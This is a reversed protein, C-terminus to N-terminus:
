RNSRQITDRLQSRLRSMKDEGVRPPPPRGQQQQGRNHDRFNFGGQQNRPPGQQHSQYRQQQQHQYQGNHQYGQQNHYQGQNQYGQNQYQGHNQYNGHSQYGQQPYHNGSHANWHQQGGQQAHQHANWAPQQQQQQNWNHQQNGNWGQQGRQQQQQQQYNGHASGQHHHNPRQRKPAPEMAGWQRIGPQYMQHGRGTREALEREGTGMNMSGYGQRYSQGNGTGLNAITNKSRNLCPRRIEKDRASLTPKPLRVGPLLVSKHSYKRPETFAICIAENCTLNRDFIANGNDKIKDSSPPRAVETGVEIAENSLPMRVSGSFGPSGYAASDSLKVSVSKDGKSKIVSDVKKVLANEISIYLYGDDMGRANCLLETETWKEMTPSMADLLREEEIFPLLVVWLWPMAKGNPDVPVDKPYFDIIPSEPDDMLWQSAKPVAHKSDSPLVALLQEVPNFPTSLQFSRCDKEFREINRLDSAFPGYHYPYYWKWSPCGDFYYKMVWCLGMVYSRFMDERSRGDGTLDDAKCKDSYYRDKWGTEHLRVNDQVNKALDDLQKQKAAKSIEKFKKLVEPDSTEYNSAVPTEVEDEEDDDDDDDDDEDIAEEKEPSEEVAPETVPVEESKEESPASTKLLSQRLETAARSNDEALMQKAKQDKRAEEKAKHGRSLPVVQRESRELIKAARGRKKHNEVPQSQLDPADAKVGKRRRTNQEERRRKDQQENEYKMKFVYDEISGVEGLIIDVKQLNVRGGSETIYGMAPLLRRYVNFLFDLAGDRIDLSPLHPLFDNGVFFCFFIQVILTLTACFTEHRMVYWMM